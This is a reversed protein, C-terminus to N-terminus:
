SNISPSALSHRQRVQRETIARVNMWSTRQGLHVAPKVLARRRQADVVAAIQGGSKPQCRRHDSFQDIIRCRDLLEAVAQRLSTETAVGQVGKRVAIKV